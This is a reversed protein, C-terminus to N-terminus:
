ATALPNIKLAVSSLLSGYPKVFKDIAALSKKFEQCAIKSNAIAVQGESATLKAAQTPSDASQKLTEASIRDIKGDIRTLFFSAVSSIQNTVQGCAVRQELGGSYTLATDLTMTRRKPDPSGVRQSEGTM